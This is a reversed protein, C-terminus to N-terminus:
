TREWMRCEKIVSLNKSNYFINTKLSQMITNLIM